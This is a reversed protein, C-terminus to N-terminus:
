GEEGGENEKPIKYFLIVGSADRVRSIKKVPMGAKELLLVRDKETRQYFSSWDVFWHYEQTKYKGSDKFATILTGGPALLRYLASFMKILIEDAIYDFFGMSYIVDQPGFEKVNREYNIMKLGNYKRMEFNGSINRLRESAFVLADEDYDVCTFHAGSQTIEPALELLERCSGCAINLVRPSIRNTLEEKLLETMKDLRVRVAVALTSKLFHFDLLRGLGQSVTMNRYVDELIKYDGPYGRPWTRAHNMFHGKSFLPNTRKRFEERIKRLEDPREAFEMDVIKLVKCVKYIAQTTEVLLTETNKPKYRREIDALKTNFEDIALDLLKLADQPEKSEPVKLHKKRVAGDPPYDLLASLTKKRIEKAGDM